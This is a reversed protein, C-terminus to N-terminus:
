SPIKVPAEVRTSSAPSRQFHQTLNELGWLLKRDMLQQNYDRQTKGTVRKYGESGLDSGWPGLYIQLEMERGHVGVTALQGRSLCHGSRDMMPASLGEGRLPCEGSEGSPM